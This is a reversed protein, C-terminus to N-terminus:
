RHPQEFVLLCGVLAAVALAASPEPVPSANNLEPVVVGYNARWIDLDAQTIEGDGDGDAGVGRSVQQGVSDRWVTYDGADVIGDGNYDGAVTVVLSVNTSSYAVQWMLGPTLAPLDVTAFVGALGAGSLVVYQDGSAPDFGEAAAVVVAGDITLSGTAEVRDFQDTDLVDLEIAADAELTLDGAIALTVAPVGTPPRIDQLLWRYNQDVQTPDFATDSYYRAVAIEGHFPQGTGSSVGTVSSSGAGLGLTNGGAWDDITQGGLSGVLENNLYLAVSDSGNEVDVIGVAHHWGEGLTEALNIDGGDGDVNFTLVGDNLVMAVGRGAGGAEILVQDAGASTDTVQFVVEFTGDRRSRAPSGGQEFFNNLGQAGGSVPISYAASLHPFTATDVALPARAGSFSLSPGGAANQWTADGVLDLAADYNLELGDAVLEVPDGGSGGMVPTIGRGGVQVAVGARVILDGGVTGQTFTARGGALDVGGSVQLADGFTVEASGVKTVSRGPRFERVKGGLVFRQNGDGRITLDDYVVVDTDYNFTFAGAVADTADLDIVPGAGSRDALMMVPRGAITASHEGALAADASALTIRSAMYDLGAAADLDNTVTYSGGSKAPFTMRNDAYGDRWTATASAGPNDGNVWVNAGGFTATTFANVRLRFHDFQNTLPAQNDHRPKDMEAHYGALLQHLEEVVAANAAAGVVNNSEDLDTDLNYLQYGTGNQYMYKWPGKRVASQQNNFRSIFLDEHAVGPTENNIYPLLNKGDIVDAATFAGGGAGAFATPVLDIAHVLESSVTGRAAANVGGGAVLMPVRMGGEFQSGKGNRLDGNDSSNPGSDCCDGGNDNIFLILTDDAISDSTDGDNNPDDIADLIKGVNRDMAWQMAAYTRRRNNTGPVDVFGPENLSDIFALDAATAQMPTHPATFSSYLFFPDNDTTAKDRIYDASQDGFIDTVYQGNFQNEVDVNSTVSGAGDSLTRRLAQSGTAGGGFFSRSGGWLGEFHEVGQNEPRNGLQGGGNAHEGIHWKGVAATDYGVAQMREWITVASTPLGQVTAATNIPGTGGQINSGYGFRTGYQGTTIMARSPSCVSGTYANTFTVGAGALRDLNPTPVVGRNGPNAAADADRMFGFDAWGADDTIILVVNSQGAASAALCCATLLLFSRLAPRM